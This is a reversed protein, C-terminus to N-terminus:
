RASQRPTYPGPTTRPATCATSHGGICTSSLLHYDFYIELILCSGVYFQRPSIKDGEPASKSLWFQFCSRAEDLRGLKRAQYCKKLSPHESTSSQPGPRGVVWFLKIILFLFM